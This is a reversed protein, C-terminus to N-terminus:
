RLEDAFHSSFNGQFLCFPFFYKLNGFFDLIFILDNQIQSSLLEEFHLFAEVLEM